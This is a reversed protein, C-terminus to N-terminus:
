ESFNIKYDLFLTVQKDNKQRVIVPSQLGKVTVKQKSGLVNKTSDIEDKIKVLLQNRYKNPSDIALSINGYSISTDEPKKIKNIFNYIAQTANYMDTNNDLKSLIYLKSGSHRNYSKSISFTSNERPSLSIMGQKFSINPHTKSATSIQTQLQKILRARQSAYKADSSLTVSMAVYEADIDISSNVPVNGTGYAIIVASLGAYSNVSLTLLVIFLIKKM